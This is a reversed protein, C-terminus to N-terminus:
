ELVDLAPIELVNVISVTAGFAGSIEAVFGFRLLLVILKLQVTGLVVDVNKSFRFPIVM